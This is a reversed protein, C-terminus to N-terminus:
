FFYSYDIVQDPCDNRNGSPCYNQDIIIPNQVNIMTCHDVHFDKVFGRSKRRWAKIRAGNQTNVFRIKKLTVNQVGREEYDKALSGISGNFVADNLCLIFM